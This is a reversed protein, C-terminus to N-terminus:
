IISRHRARAILTEADDGDELSTYGAKMTVQVPEAAERVAYETNTVVGAIRRLVVEAEALATDPM